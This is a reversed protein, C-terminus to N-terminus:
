TGSLRVAEYLADVYQLVIDDRMFPIDSNAYPPHTLHSVRNIQKRVISNNFTNGLSRNCFYYIVFYDIYFM